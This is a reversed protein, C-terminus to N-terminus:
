AALEEIVKVRNVVTQPQGKYEDHRKVTAKIKLKEGVQANFKGKALLCAREPTAMTV